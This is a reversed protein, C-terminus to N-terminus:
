GPPALMGSCWARVRKWFRTRVTHSAADALRGRLAPERVMRALAAALEAPANPAVLLGNSQDDIFEAIPDMAERYREIADRVAPPM